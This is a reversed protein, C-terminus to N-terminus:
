SDLHIAELHGVRPWPGQRSHEADASSPSLVGWFTQIKPMECATYVNDSPLQSIANRTALQAGHCVTQTEEAATAVVAVTAFGVAVGLILVLRCGDLLRPSVPLRGRRLFFFARALAALAEFM